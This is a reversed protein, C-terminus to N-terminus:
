KSATEKEKLERRLEVARQLEKERRSSWENFQYELVNKYRVLDNQLDTNLKEQLRNLEVVIENKRTKQYNNYERLLDNRKAEVQQDIKRNVGDIEVQIRQQEQKVQDPNKGLGAVSMQLQLNALNVQQRSELDQFYKELLSEMEKTKNKLEANFSRNLIDARLKQEAKIGQSGKQSYEKVAENLTNRKFNQEAEFIREIETIQHDVVARNFFMPELNDHVENQVPDFKSHKKFLRGAEKELGHYGNWDPQERLLYGLDPLRKIKKGSHDPQISHGRVWLLFGIVGFILVLVTVLRWRLYKVLRM